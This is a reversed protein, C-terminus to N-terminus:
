NIRRVFKNHELATDEEEKEELSKVKKHGQEGLANSSLSSFDNAIRGQEKKNINELLEDVEKEM